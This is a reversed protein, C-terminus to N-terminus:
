PFYDPFCTPAGQQRRQRLIKTRKPQPLVSQSSENRKGSIHRMKLSDRVQATDGFVRSPPSTPAFNGHALGAVFFDHSRINFLVVLSCTAIAKSLSLTASM